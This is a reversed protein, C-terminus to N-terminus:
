NVEEPSPKSENLLNPIEFSFSTGEGLKSKVKIKGHLAELSEKVIYLGLGSGTNKDNAKYFMKFIHPLYQEDIGLGNDSIEIQCSQEDVAISIAVQLKNQYPNAYRIANSIINNFIVGLRFSDSYFTSKLDLQLSKEINESNPMYRLNEFSISILEEFDISERKVSQRSNRSYHIIQQIFEDLRKISKTMLQYYKAREEDSTALQAIDILGLISSLPARLDHSASYVFKDLETNLKKLTQNQQKLKQEAKKVETIDRIAGDYYVEGTDLMNRTTSILGWFKEGNKRKFLVEENNYYGKVDLIKLLVSREIPSAYLEETSLNKFDDADYGFMDLFARNAYILKGEPNSRYLGEKVHQNISTLLLQSERLQRESIVRKTINRSFISVGVVEEKERIPFMKLSFTLLQGQYPYEEVFSCPKGLLAMDYRQKWFKQDAIPAMSMINMGMYPTQGYYSVCYDKFITNFDILEYQRNILWISHENNDILTRLNAEKKQLLQESLKRETIDRVFVAVGIITKEDRIPYYSAEFWTRQLNEDGYIQETTFIEGHLARDIDAQAKTDDGNIQMYALISHGIEINKGYISLMARHHNQNFLTYHYATDLAFVIDQTSELVGQLRSNLQKLDEEYLKEKTINKAFVSVGTIHEFHYIPYTKSEIFQRHNDIVYESVFQQPHGQLTAEYVNKWNQYVEKDSIYDLIKTGVLPEQGAYQAFARAFEPNLALIELDQNVMWISDEYSEFIARLTAEQEIIQKETQKRLTIDSIRVLRYTKKRIRFTTIKVAGWFAQKQQTLYEFEGAWFSQNEIAQTIKLIDDSSIPNKHLQVGYNGILDSKQTYGFMEVATKNCRYIQQTALDVLFLADPSEEFVNNLLEENYQLERRIKEEATVDKVFVAVGSIDGQPNRIPNFAMDRFYTKDRFRFGGRFSFFEGQMSKELHTKMLYKVEEPLIDIINDGVRPEVHYTEYIIRRTASNIFLIKYNRDISYIQENASEIVASLNAEKLALENTREIVKAELEQNEEQIIQQNEQEQRLLRLRMQNIKDSMGISLILFQGLFAFHLAYQNYWEVRIIGFLMLLSICLGAYFIILGLGYFIVERTKELRAAYLSLLYIPSQVVIFCIIALLAWSPLVFNLLFLGLLVYWILKYARNLQPAVELIELYSKTFSLGFGTGLSIIFVEYNGQTIQILFHFFLATFGDLAGTVLAVCINYLALYLWARLGSAFYLLINYFFVIGVMGYFIGLLIYSKIMNRTYIPETLLIFRAQIPTKSSYRVYVQVREQPHLHLLFASQNSFYQRAQSPVSTGTKQYILEGTSSIAYLEVLYLKPDTLSFVYEADAIAHANKLNFKIWFNSGTIGANHRNTTFPQFVQKQIAPFGISASKDEWFYLHSKLDIKQQIQNILITDQAYLNGVAL